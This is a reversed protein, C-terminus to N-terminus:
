HVTTVLAKFFLSEGDRREGGGGEREKEEGRSVKGRGSGRRWGGGGDRM